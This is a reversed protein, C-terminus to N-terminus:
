LSFCVNIDACLQVIHVFNSAALFIVTTFEASSSEEGMLVSKLQLRPLCICFALKLFQLFLSIFLWSRTRSKIGPCRGRRLDSLHLHM